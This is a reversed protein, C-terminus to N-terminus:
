CAYLLAYPDICRAMTYACLLVDPRTYACLLVNKWDGLALVRLSRHMQDLKDAALEFRVKNDM